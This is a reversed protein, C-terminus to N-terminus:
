FPIDDDGGEAGFSDEYMFSRKRYEKDPMARQYLAITKDADEETMEEPSPWTWVPTWSTEIGPIPTRVDVCWIERATM